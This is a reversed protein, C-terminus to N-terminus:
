VKKLLDVINSALFNFTDFVIPIFTRQHYFCRKVRKSLKISSGRLTTQRMIFTKTWLRMLPFCWDIECMCNKRRGVLVGFCRNGLTSRGDQLDSLFNVPAKYNM